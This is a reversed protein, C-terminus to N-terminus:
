AASNLFLGSVQRGLCLSPDKKKETSALAPRGGAAEWTGLGLWLMGSNVRKLRNADREASAFLYICRIRVTTPICM